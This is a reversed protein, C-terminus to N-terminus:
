NESSSVDEATHYGDDDSGQNNSLEMNSIRGKPPSRSCIWPRCKKKHCVVCANNKLDTARQRKQEETLDNKQMNGIEMPLPQQSNSGYTGRRFSEQPFSTSWLASDVRLAIKAAEEFTSCQSKLVEVRIERKLGQVFRDFMEGASVDSIMLTSNRFESLYKSVSQTQKLRRLKDRARREHDHPVFEQLLLTRFNNWSSPVQNSQVITFWWSAATSTLFSSAFAIRNQDSIPAAPNSLQTLSLYQEVKFLWSSVTIFDRRGDFTEPKNPKLNIAGPTQQAHDM